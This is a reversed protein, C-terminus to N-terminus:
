GRGLTEILQDRLPARDQKSPFIESLSYPFYGSLGALLGMAYYHGNRLDAELVEPMRTDIVYLRLGHEKVGNLLINNIHQDRFGYGIVVAQKGGEAIADELLAFYSQLLPESQILPEKRTGIVLQNTGNSSRWGYSGHLKVYRITDATFADDVKNPSDSLPLTVFDSAHLAPANLRYTSTPFAPVGPSVFGWCREVFLDQNLTFFLGVGGNGKWITDLFRRIQVTDVPGPPALRLAEDLRRYADHVAQRIAKKDQADYTERDVVMSYASEFHFRGQLLERLKPRQQVEPHNFIQAWMEASLFGGFNKTFGAGTLFLIENTSVM